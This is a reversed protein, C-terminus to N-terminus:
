VNNGAFDPAYMYVQKRFPDVKNDSKPITQKEFKETREESTEKNVHTQKRKVNQVRKNDCKPTYYTHWTVTQRQL